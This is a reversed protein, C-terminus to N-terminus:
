PLWTAEPSVQIRDFASPVAPVGLQFRRDTAFGIAEARSPARNAYAGDWFRASNSPPALLRVPVVGSPSAQTRWSAPPLKGTTALSRAAGLKVGVPRAASM